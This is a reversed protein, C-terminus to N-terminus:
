LTLLIVTLMASFTFYFTATKWFYWEQFYATSNMTHANM